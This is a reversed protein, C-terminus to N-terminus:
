LPERNFVNKLDEDTEIMKNVKDKTQTVIAAYRTKAPNIQDIKGQWKGTPTNVITQHTAKGEELATIIEDFSLKSGVQALNTDNVGEASKITQQWQGELGDIKNNISKITANFGDGAIRSLSDSIALAGAVELQIKESKTLKGGSKKLEKAIDKLALLRQQMLFVNNKMARNLVVIKGNKFYFAKANHSDLGKKSKTWITTGTFGNIGLIQSVRESWFDGHHMYNLLMDSNALSWLKEEATMVNWPDPASFVKANVHYHAAVLLALAGGLSHGTITFDLKVNDGYKDRMKKEVYLYYDLASNFQTKRDGKIDIRKGGYSSDPVGPGGANNVVSNPKYGRINRDGAGLGLGDALLDRYDWKNTGAYYITVEVKNGKKVAHYGKGLGTKDSEKDYAANSWFNLNKDTPM